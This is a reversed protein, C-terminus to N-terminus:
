HVAVNILKRQEYYNRVQKLSEQGAKSNPHYKGSTYYALAQNSLAAIRTGKHKEALGVIIWNGAPIEVSPVPVVPKKSGIPLAWIPLTPTEKLVVSKGRRECAVWKAPLKYLYRGIGYKVAARKLSDSEGGKIAEFATNDAIGCKSVTITKDNEVFSVILRCLVGGNPGPIFDDWWHGIGFVQDLRQMVARSTIYALALARTKDGNTSGARWEIDLSPFPASLADMLEQQLTSITM